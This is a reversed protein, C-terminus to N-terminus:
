KVSVASSSKTAGVGPASHSVMKRTLSFEGFYHGIMEPMVVIKNFAKGNHIFLSLGVMKPLIIMDRCHTKIDKKYEGKIARDVKKMFTKQADTLGRSITRRQRAPLLKAFTNLDMSKLEETSKGKFMFEKVM